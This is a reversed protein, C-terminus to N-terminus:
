IEIVQGKRLGSCSNGQMKFTGVQQNQANLAALSVTTHGNETLFEKVLAKTANKAKLEQRNRLEDQVSKVTIHTVYIASGILLADAVSVSSAADAVAEVADSGWDFIDGLLEFIFDLM